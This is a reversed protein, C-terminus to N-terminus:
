SNRISDVLRWAGTSPNTWRPSGDGSHKCDLQRARTRAVTHGKELEGLAQQTLVKRCGLLEASRRQADNREIHATQEEFHLVFWLEICPSSVALNIENDAAMIEVENLFPHVDVDFM